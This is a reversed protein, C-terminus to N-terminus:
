SASKKKSPPAPALWRLRELVRAGSGRGRLKCCPGGGDYSSPAGLSAPSSRSSPTSSSSTPRSARSSPSPSRPSRRAISPSCSSPSASASSRRSSAPRGARSTAVQARADRPAGVDEAAFFFFVGASQSFANSVLVSYFVFDGLGLKVSSPTGDDDGRARAGGGDDRLQAVPDGGDHDDDPDDDDDDPKALDAEYLLGPLPDGSEGMFKVLWRLPGCPSLVAFADYAALAVLLCWSTVPPYHSLQWAMVVAVAVLACQTAAKPLALYGPEYIALVGLVAGNYAGLGFSVLDTCRLGLEELSALVLVGGLLGLLLGSSLMMYGKLIKTCRFRYLGLVCLTAVLLVCVVVGANAAGKGVRELGSDEPDDDYVVLQGTDVRVRVVFFSALLM